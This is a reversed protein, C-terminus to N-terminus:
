RSLLSQGPPLRNPDDRFVRYGYWILFITGLFLAAIAVPLLWPQGALGTVVFLAGCAVFLWGGIKQSAVWSAESRLTWPTRIGMIANPRVRGMM